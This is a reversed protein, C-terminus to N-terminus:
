AGPPAPSLHYSIANLIAVARFLDGATYWDVAILNPLAGRVRACTAARGVLVDAANVRASTAPDPALPPSWHNLLFLSGTTGGRNPVCSAAQNAPDTLLSPTAWTYPTEQVIGDYDLHIWPVGDARHETLVVVQRHSAIMQRLTPWTPGPAGRYAYRDLGSRAFEQALDATSVYDEVDLVLVDGRGRDLRKRMTRLGQVLPTAGLECFEHCLYVRSDATKVPDTVVVGDARPHGYHVDILFGHIGAKLQSAIGLPQNPLAFGKSAASMSNHTAALVVRNLPRDCLNAQGNCRQAAQAQAQGAVGLLAASAIAVAPAWAQLRRKWGHTRM